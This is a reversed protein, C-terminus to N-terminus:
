SGELWTKPVDWDPMVDVWNGDEDTYCELTSNEDRWIVLLSLVESKETDDPIAGHLRDWLAVFRGEPPWSYVIRGDDAVLRGPETWRDDTDSM